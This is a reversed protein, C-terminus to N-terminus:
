HTECAPEMAASKMEAEMRCTVSNEIPVCIGNNQRELANLARAEATARKKIMQRSNSRANNHDEMYREGM